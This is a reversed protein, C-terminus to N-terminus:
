SWMLKQTVFGFLLSTFSYLSIIKGKHTKWRQFHLLFFFQLLLISQVVSFLYDCLSFFIFYFVVYLMVIISCFLFNCLLRLNIVRKKLAGMLNCHASIYICVFFLSLLSLLSYSINLIRRKAM